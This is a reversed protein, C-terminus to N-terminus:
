GLEMEVVLKTLKEPDIIIIILQKRQNKIFIM